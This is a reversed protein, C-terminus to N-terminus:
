YGIFTKERKELIHGSTERGKKVQAIHHCRKESENM